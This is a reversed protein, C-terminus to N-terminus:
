IDESPCLGTLVCERCKPRRAICITRGHDIIMHTLKVWDKANFLEMLNIEIKKADKVKTFGLLNMIRIMHTDIVMSPIGHIEGLVCNATKRGVGPLSILEEMTDPVKGM